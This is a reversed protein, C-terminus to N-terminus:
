PHAAFLGGMATVFSAGAQVTPYGAAIIMAAAFPTGPLAAALSKMGGPPGNYIAFYCAPLQFFANIAALLPPIKLMLGIGLNMLLQIGGIKLQLGASLAANVKLSPIFGSLALGVQANAKLAATPNWALSVGLAAQLQAKVDFQLPGLGFSGYLMAQIGALAGPLFPIFLALGVAFTQPPQTGEIVYGPPPPNNWPM